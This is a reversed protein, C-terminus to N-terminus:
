RYGAAPASVKVGLVRGLTQRYRDTFAKGFFGWRSHFDHRDNVNMRVNDRRIGLLIWQRREAPCLRRPRALPWSSILHQKRCHIVSTDVLRRDNM